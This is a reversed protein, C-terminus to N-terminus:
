GLTSVSASASAASAQATVTTLYDQPLVSSSLPVQVARSLGEAVQQIQIEARDLADTLVSPYFGGQNSLDTPQLNPVVSTVTILDGTPYPVTIIKISGGPTANQDANLLVSYDANLALTNEVLAANTHVVKMDSAQFVKFTFGFIVTVGNCAYPGAKRVTSSITL